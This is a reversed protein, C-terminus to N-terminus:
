IKNGQKIETYPVSPLDDMTELYNALLRLLSLASMEGGPLHSNSVILKEPPLKGLTNALCSIVATMPISNSSCEVTEEVILPCLLKLVAEKTTQPTSVSFGFEVIHVNVSLLKEFDRSYSLGLCWEFIVYNSDKTESNDLLSYNSRQYHNVTVLHDLFIVDVRREGKFSRVEKCLPRLLNKIKSTAPVLMETCTSKLLRSLPNEEECIASLCNKAVKSKSPNQERIKTFFKDGGGTQGAFVQLMTLVASKEASPEYLSVKQPGKLIQTIRSNSKIEKFVVMRSAPKKMTMVYPFEQSMYNAFVNLLDEKREKPFQDATSIDILKLTAEPISDLDKSFSLALEWEFTFHLSPDLDSSKERKRHLVRVKRVPRFRLKSYDESPSEEMPPPTVTMQNQLPSKSLSERSPRVPAEVFPLSNSRRLLQKTSISRLPSHKSENTSDEGQSSETTTKPKRLKLPSLVSNRIDVPGTKSSRLQSRGHSRKAAANLIIETKPPEPPTQPENIDDFYLEIRVYWTGSIDKYAFTPYIQERLQMVPPFILEQQVCKLIRALKGELNMAGSEFFKTMHVALDGTEKVCREYRHILQTAFLNEL